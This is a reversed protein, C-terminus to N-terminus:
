SPEKRLTRHATWALAVLSVIPATSWSAAATAGIGGGFRAAVAVTGSGITYPLRRGCLFTLFAAPVTAAGLPILSPALNPNRTPRARRCPDVGGRHAARRDLAEHGRVSGARAQV